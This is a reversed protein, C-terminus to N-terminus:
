RSHIFTRMIDGSLTENGPMVPTFEGTTVFPAVPGMMDYVDPIISYQGNTFGTRRIRM